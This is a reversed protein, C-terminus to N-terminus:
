SAADQLALDGAEPSRIKVVALNVYSECRSGSSKGGYDVRALNLWLSGANIRVPLGSCKKLRPLVLWYMKGVTQGSVQGSEVSTIM